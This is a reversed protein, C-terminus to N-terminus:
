QKIERRNELIWKIGSATRETCNKYHNGENMVFDTKIGSNAYHEFISQTNIQVPKLFKNRTNKEKDGLSFYVCDPKRLPEHTRVYEEFNPYWLSGSCSAASAFIDTKYLSYIAFLGALTYGVIANYAVPAFLSKGITPMIDDCLECLYADAGGSCATDDSSIKPIAWPSMDRNWDFGGIVALHFPMNTIAKTKEFLSEGENMVAHYIILPAKEDAAFILIQKEGSTLKVSIKEM